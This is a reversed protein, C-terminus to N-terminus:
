RRQWCRAWWMRGVVYIFWVCYVTDHHTRVSQSVPRLPETLRHLDLLLTVVESHSGEFAEGLCEWLHSVVDQSLPPSISPNIVDVCMAHM